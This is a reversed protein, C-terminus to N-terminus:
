VSSDTWETRSAGLAEMLTALVILPNFILDINCKDLERMASLMMKQDSKKVGELLQEAAEMANKQEEEPPMGGRLGYPGIYIVNSQRFYTIDFKSGKKNQLALREIEAILNLSTNELFIFPFASSDKIGSRDFVVATLPKGREKIFLINYGDHTTYSKQFEEEITRAFVSSIQKDQGSCTEQTSHLSDIRTSYSESIAIPSSSKSLSM